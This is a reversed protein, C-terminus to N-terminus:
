SKKNQIFDKFMKYQKYTLGPFSWVKILSKTTIIEADWTKPKSLKKNDYEIENLLYRLATLSAVMKNNANIVIGLVRKM